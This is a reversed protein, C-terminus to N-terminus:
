KNAHNFRHPYYTLEQNISQAIDQITTGKCKLEPTPEYTKTPILALKNKLKQWAILAQNLSTYYGGNYAEKNKYLRVRYRKKNKEHWVGKPLLGKIIPSSM